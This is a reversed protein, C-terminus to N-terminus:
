RRNCSSPLPPMPTTYAAWSGRSSRRTAILSTCALRECGLAAARISRSPLASALSECGLTTGTNSTPTIPPAVVCTKMVISSTSPWVSDCHSSVRGLGGATRSTSSCHAWPRAAAWASPRTWRSKLGALTIMPSSPRARTRSKPSARVSTVADRGVSSSDSRSSSPPSVEAGDSRMPGGERDPDNEPEASAGSVSAPATIPVGGYM